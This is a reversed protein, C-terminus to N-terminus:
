RNCKVAACIRPLLDADTEIRRITNRMERVAALENHVRISEAEFRPAEVKDAKLEQVEDSLRTWAVTSGILLAIVPGWASFLKPVDARTM